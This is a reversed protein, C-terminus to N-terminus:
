GLRLSKGAAAYTLELELPVALDAALWLPVTPLAEGVALPHVWMEIRERGGARVPRYAVVSPGGPVVGWADPRVAMVASLSEHLNVAPNPVVNTVVVSTGKQLWSAVKVAFQREAGAGTFETGVLTVTGATREYVRSSVTVDFATPEIFEGSMRITPSGFQTDVIAPPEFTLPDVEDHQRHVRLGAIHDADLVQLNLRELIGCAWQVQFSHWPCWREAAEPSFHDKLPM